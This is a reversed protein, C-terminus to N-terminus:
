TKGLFYYEYQGEPWMEMIHDEFECETCRLSKISKVETNLDAHSEILENKCKPCYPFRSMVVENLRM